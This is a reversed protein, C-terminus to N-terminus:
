VFSLPNKWLSFPFPSLVFRMITTYGTRTRARLRNKNNESIANYVTIRALFFLPLITTSFVSNTPRTDRKQPAEATRTWPVVPLNFVTRIRATSTLSNRKGRGRHRNVLTSHALWRWEGFARTCLVRLIRLLIFYLNIWITHVVIARDDGVSSWGLSGYKSTDLSRVRSVYCYSTHISAGLFSLKKFIANRLTRVTKLQPSSACM